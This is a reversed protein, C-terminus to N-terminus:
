NKTGALWNFNWSVPPDNRDSPGPLRGVPKEKLNDEEDEDEDKDKGKDLEEDEDEDEDEDLQQDPKSAVKTEVKKPLGGRMTDALCPRVCAQRDACTLM